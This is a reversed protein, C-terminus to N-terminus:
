NAACDRRSPMRSSERRPDCARQSRRLRPATEALWHLDRRWLNRERAEREFLAEAKTLVLTFPRGSRRTVHTVPLDHADIM